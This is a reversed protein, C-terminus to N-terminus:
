ATGASSACHAVARLWDRRIFGSPGRIMIWYRGFANRAAPDTAVVPNQTDALTTADDRGTFRFTIAAKVLGPEAFATFEEPNAVTVTGGGRRRIRGIAGTVLEKGPVDALLVFGLELFQDLLPVGLQSPLGHEGLLRGPVSRVALLLGSVPMERPTLACFADYVAHPERDIIRSHREGFDYAPLLADMRSGQPTM